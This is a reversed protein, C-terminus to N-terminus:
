FAALRERVDTGLKATLNGLQVQQQARLIDLLFAGEMAADAAREEARDGEVVDNWGFHKGETAAQRVPWAIKKDVYLQVLQELSPKEERNKGDSDALVHRERPRLMKDVADVDLVNVVELYHRQYLYGLVAYVDRVVKMVDRHLLIPRLAQIVEAADVAICDFVYTMHSPADIAVVLYSLNRLGVEESKKDFVAALGVARQTSIFKVIRELIGHSRRDYLYFPRQTPQNKTTCPHSVVTHLPHLFLRDRRQRTDTSFEAQTGVSESSDGNEM